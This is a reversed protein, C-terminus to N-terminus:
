KSHTAALCIIQIAFIVYLLLQEFADWKVHNKTAHFDDSFQLNEVKSCKERLLLVANVIAGPQKSRDKSGAWLTKEPISLSVM